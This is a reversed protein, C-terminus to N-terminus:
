TTKLSNSAFSQKLFTRKIKDYSETLHNLLIYWTQAIIGFNKMEIMSVFFFANEGQM